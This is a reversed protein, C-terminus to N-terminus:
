WIFFHLIGWSMAAFIVAIIVMYVCGIFFGRLHYMYDKYGKCGETGEIVVWKPTILCIILWDMILLDAVNWTMAAIFIYLLVKTFPVEGGRFYLVGFLILVGFLVLGGVSSFMKAAKKHATTQEPLKSAQRIDDPYDHLMEHPFKVVIIYIYIMWLLSWVLGAALAGAIM